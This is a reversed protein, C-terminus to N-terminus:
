CLPTWGSQKYLFATDSETDYIVLGPEPNPIKMMELWTMRPLLFGSTKSELSLLACPHTKHSGISVKGNGDIMMSLDVDGSPRKTKFVLGGPNGASTGNNAKVFGNIEAINNINICKLQGIRSTLNPKTEFYLMPTKIGGDANIIKTTTNGYTLVHELSINSILSGDGELPANELTQIRDTISPLVLQVAYVNSHTDKIKPVYTELIDIRKIDTEFQSIKPDIKEQITNIKEIESFINNVITKNNKIEKENEFIKISSNKLVNVDTELTHVKDPINKVRSVEQIINNIQASQRQNEEVLPTINPIKKIENKIATVDSEVRHIRPADTELINIKKGHEIVNANVATLMSSQKAVRDDTETIIKGHESSTQELNALKEMTELADTDLIQIKEEHKNVNSVLGSIKEAHENVIIERAVGLLNSGDGYYARAKVDNNVTLSDTIKLSNYIKMKGLITATADVTLSGIHVPKATELSLQDLSINTIRSGDGALWPTEFGRKFYIFNEFTDGLQEHTINTLFSGDAILKESVEIVNSKMRNSVVNPTEIKEDVTLAGRISTNPDIKLTMNGDGYISLDGDYKFLARTEGKQMTLFVDRPNETNNKGLEFIPNEIENYSVKTFNVVDLNEVEISKFKTHVNTDSGLETIKQLSLEGLDVIEKSMSDYALVNAAEARRIPSVFFGSEKMQPIETKSANLVISNNPQADNTYRGFRIKETFSLNNVNKVM